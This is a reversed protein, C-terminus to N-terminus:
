ILYEWVKIAGTGRLINMFKMGGGGSYISIFLNSM